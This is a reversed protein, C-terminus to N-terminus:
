KEEANPNEHMTSEVQTIADSLGYPASDCSVAKAEELLKLWEPALVLKAVQALKFEATNAAQRAEIENTLCRDNHRKLAAVENELGKNRLELEVLRKPLEEKSELLEYREKHKKLMREIHGIILVVPSAISTFGSTYEDAKMGLKNVAFHRLAEELRAVEKVTKYAAVEAQKKEAILKVVDADRAESYGRLEAAQVCAFCYLVQNKEHGIKYCNPM